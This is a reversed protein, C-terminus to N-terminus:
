VVVFVGEVPAFAEHGAANRPRVYWHYTHGPKLRAAEPVEYRCTSSRVTAAQVRTAGSDLCGDEYLEISFARQNNPPDFLGWSLVPTTSSVAAHDDPALDFPRVTNYAVLENDPAPHHVFTAVVDASCVAGRRVFLAVVYKTDDKLIEPPLAFSTIPREVDVSLM